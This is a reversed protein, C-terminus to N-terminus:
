SHGVLSIKKYGLRQRLADIDTILRDIHLISADLSPLHSRGTGRQDHLICHFQSVLPAALSRM